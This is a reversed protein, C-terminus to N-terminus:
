HKRKGDWIIDVYEAITLGALKVQAAIITRKVEREPPLSARRV